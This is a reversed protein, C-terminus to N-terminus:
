DERALRAEQRSTSGVTKDRVAAQPQRSSSVETSRPPSSSYSGSMDSWDVAASTVNSSWSPEPSPDEHSSVGLEGV